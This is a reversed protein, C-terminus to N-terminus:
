KWTGVEVFGTTSYMGLRSLSVHRGQEDRYRIVFVGDIVDGQSSEM